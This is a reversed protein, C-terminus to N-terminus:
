SPEIFLGTRGLRWSDLVFFINQLFSSGEEFAVWHLFHKNPKHNWMFLLRYHFPQFQNWCSALMTLPTPIEFIWMKLWWYSAFLTCQIYALATFEWPWYATANLCPDLLAAHGELRRFFQPGLRWIDGDTGHIHPMNQWWIAESSSICPHFQFLDTERFDAPLSLTAHFKLHQFSFSLGGRM